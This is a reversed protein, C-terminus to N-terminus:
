IKPIIIRAKKNKKIFLKIFPILLIIIIITRVILKFLNRYFTYDPYIHPMIIDLIFLIFNGIVVTLITKKNLIKKLSLNPFLIKVCIVIIILSILTSVIFDIITGLIPSLLKLLKNTIFTIFTGLFWMPVVFFIRIFKPLKYILNLIINKFNSSDEQDYDDFIDDDENISAYEINKNQKINMNNIIENPNDITSSLLVSSSISVLTTTTLLKRKLEKKV